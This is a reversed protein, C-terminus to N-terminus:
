SKVFCNLERYNSLVIRKEKIVKRLHSNLLTELEVRRDLDNIFDLMNQKKFDFLQEKKSFSPKGPHSLIETIGVEIQSLIQGFVKQNMKSTYLLGYFKSRGWITKRESFLRMLSFKVFNTGYFPLILEPFSFLSFYKEKPVRMFHIKYKKAVKLFIPFIGPVMHVHQQSNIHDIVLGEELAEEIQACFEKEVQQLYSQCFITKLILRAYSSYFYGETDVLDPVVKKSLIAKGWTLSLHIGLGLSPCQKIVRLANKYGPTTVLLSASTLIGKQHALKIAQNTGQCLGFDDANIVVYKELAVM